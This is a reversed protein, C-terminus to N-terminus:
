LLNNGLIGSFFQMICAIIVAGQVMQLRQQWEHTRETVGMAYIDGSGPCTLEEQNLFILICIVYGM